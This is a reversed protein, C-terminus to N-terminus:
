KMTEAEGEGIRGDRLRQITNEHEISILVRQKM